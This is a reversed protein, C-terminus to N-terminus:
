DNKLRELSNNIWDLIEQKEEKSFSSESHLLKYEFPPMDGSEIQKKISELDKIPEGHGLFPFDNTMDLHQKAEKIDHAILNSIGPIKSYWPYITKDSHCNFCSRVFLKKVSKLYDQNIQSLKEKPIEVITDLSDHKESHKKEVKREGHKEGGHGFSTGTCLFAFILLFLKM